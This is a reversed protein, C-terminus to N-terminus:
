WFVKEIDKESLLKSEGQKLNTDLELKGISIRKLYLVKNGCAAAMRKVQHYKGEAIRIYASCGGLPEVSAPLCVEGNGLCIGNKFALIDKDTFPKALEAYYVKTIDSKPSMVRHAFGGDNTLLLLGETDKDLRGVPFVRMRQTREDLLSLVTADREDETASVVGAPKNLMIYIFKNWNLKEGDLEIIDSETCCTSAPLSVCRGNVYVRGDKIMERVQKRSGYGCDSIIKDLRLVPM